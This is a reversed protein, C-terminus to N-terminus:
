GPSSEVNNTTPKFTRATLTLVHKWSPINQRVKHISRPSLDPMSELFEICKRYNEKSTESVKADRAYQFLWPITATAAVLDGILPDYVM